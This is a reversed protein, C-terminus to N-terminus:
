AEKNCSPGYNDILDDEEGKREKESDSSLHNHIHTAGQKQICSAQHHSTPWNNLRDGLDSSQGIYVPVWYGEANKYAFIYNGAKDQFSSDIESICYKYGDGSKGIWTCIEAM